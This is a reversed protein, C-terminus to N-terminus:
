RRLTVVDEMVKREEVNTKEKDKEEEKEDVMMM